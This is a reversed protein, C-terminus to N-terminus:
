SQQNNSDQQEAKKQEMEYFALLPSFTQRYFISKEKHNFRDSAILREVNNNIDDIARWIRIISQTAWAIWLALATLILSVIIITNIM